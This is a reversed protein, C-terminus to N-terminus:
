FIELKLFVFNVINECVLVFFNLPFGVIGETVLISCWANGSYVSLPLGVCDRTVCIGSRYVKVRLLSLQQKSLLGGKTRVKGFNKGSICRFHDSIVFFLRARQSERLKLLSKKRRDLHFLYSYTSYM